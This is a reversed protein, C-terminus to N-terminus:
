VAVAKTRDPEQQQEYVPDFSDNLLQVERALTELATSPLALTSQIAPVRPKSPTILWCFFCFYVCFLYLSLM